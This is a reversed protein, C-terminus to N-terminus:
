TQQRKRTVSTPENILQDFQYLSLLFQLNHTDADLPSKSLDGILDGVLILEKNKFRIKKYFSKLNDSSQTDSNPPPDYM